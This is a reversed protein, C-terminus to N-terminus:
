SQLEAVQCVRSTNRERLMAAVAAVQASDLASQRMHNLCLAGRFGLYDPAIELLDPIDGLRLSGALGALLNRSKAEAVFLHLASEDLWYGLRGASKDATDLMAGYFGAEALVTLLGFNPQQDAFLVAVVKCHRTLSGLAKACEEHREHGFFGVKVIDTGTRAMAAVAAQLIAPAMPLDGVTASVPKRGGVCRVISEVVDHPLAGLAGQAPNKLDIIDAGGDMVLQAEDRSTVSALFGTM